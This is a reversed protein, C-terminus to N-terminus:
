PLPSPRADQLWQVAPALLYTFATLVAFATFIKADDQGPSGWIAKLVVAGTAIDSAAFGIFGLRVAPRDLGVLLRLTAALLSAVLLVVATQALRNLDITYSSSWIGACILAFEIPATAFLLRPFTTSEVRSMLAVAAYIAGGALLAIAATAVIRLNTLDLDRAVAASFGWLAFGSLLTVYSLLVLRRNNM